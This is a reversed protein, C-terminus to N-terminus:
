VLESVLAEILEKARDNGRITSGDINLTYNNVVQSSVGGGVQKMQEAITRAFPRSYKRNTLPVIAEAGAEGVIDLPVGAGPRNAIAGNAHYRMMVGGAAHPRIGGAADGHRSIIQSVFTTINRPIRSLASTFTSIASTDASASIHTSHSRPIRNVSQTFRDSERTGSGDVVNGNARHNTTKGSRKNETEQYKKSQKEASGDSVNGTSTATTSKPILTSGNWTWVNGQADTLSTDDAIANGKLDVLTSGNWVAVNGQADKLELDNISINADKDVIPANNYGNILGILTDIDGGCSNVMAKFSSKSINSMQESTIGAQQMKVALDSINIGASDLSNKVGMGM